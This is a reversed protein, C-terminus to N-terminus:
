PHTLLLELGAQTYLMLQRQQGDSSRRLRTVLARTSGDPLELKLYPRSLMADREMKWYGSLATAGDAADTRLHFAQLPSLTLSRAVTLHHAPDTTPSAKRERVRWDGQFFDETVHQLNVDYLPAEM